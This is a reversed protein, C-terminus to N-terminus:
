MKGPEALRITVLQNAGNNSPLLHRDVQRMIRRAFREARVVGKVVYPKTADSVIVLSGVGFLATLPNQKTEISKIARLPISATRVNIVGVHYVLRDETLYLKKCAIRIADIIFCLLVLAGVAVIAWRMYEDKLYMAPQGHKLILNEIEDNFWWIAGVGGGLVVALLIERIFVLCSFRAKAVIRDSRKDLTKM